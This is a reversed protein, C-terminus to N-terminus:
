FAGVLCNADTASSEASCDIQFWDFPLLSCDVTVGAIGFAGSTGAVKKVITADGSVTGILGALLMAAPILTGAVGPANGTLTMPITAIVSPIWLSGFQGWGILNYKVTNTDAGTGYGILFLRSIFGPMKRVNFASNATAGPVLDAPATITPPQPNLQTNTCNILRASRFQM